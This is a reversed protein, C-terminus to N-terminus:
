SNKQRVMGSRLIGCTIGPWLLMCVTMLRSTRRQSMTRIMAMLYEETTGNQQAIAWLNEGAQVIHVGETPQPTPQPTPTSEDDNSGESPLTIEQGIQLLNTSLGNIAMLHEETTGNDVAIRYLNDGAVVTYVEQGAVVLPTVATAMMAVTGLIAASKTMWRTSKNQIQKINMEFAGENLVM